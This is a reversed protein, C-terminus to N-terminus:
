NRAFTQSGSADIGRLHKLFDSSDKYGVLRLSRMEQGQPDFFILAPPGVLQFQHLLARQADTNDTVDARLLTFRSLAQKVQPNQFTTNEMRVCDVCWDAYFDLLVPKGKAASLANQLATVTNVTQFKLPSVAAGNGQSGAAVFSLGELPKLPDRAGSVAGLGLLLGYGLLLIGLGKGLRAWGSASDSLNDLARLYVASIVLLAAWLALTAWAPLIRSLMWIAVALLLVGFVAKVGDMWKGARPLLQGASTGILLLPVGMGLSLAFLSIGGLVVDGTQSIYLLAGALPAAVCPGVILASLIGMVFTGVGSGGKGMNSLRSQVSAPMQLNYFGFMSLALLVFVISFAILVWPNQFFAQLYAGTVGAIMGIVTYTLAMGLVYALSLLFARRTSVTQGQGVVIASLIPIMPFVCPTLALGLGALFFIGVTVLLNGRLIQAFKDQESLAGGSGANPAPQAPTTVTGNGGGGGAGTLTFKFQKTAPPYCVGAVACGQYKSTLTIRGPKPGSFELPIVVKVTRGPYVVQRGFTEDNHVVGPPLQYPGLKVTGPNVSLKMKDRYLYYGPASQWTAEIHTPDLLRASFKFAQDPDLFDTQGFNQAGAGGAAFLLLFGLWLRASLQMIRRM